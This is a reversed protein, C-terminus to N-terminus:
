RRRTVRRKKNSKRHSKRNKRSKRSGGNSKDEDTNLKLANNTANAENQKELVKNKANSMYTRVVTKSFNSTKIRDDILEEISENKEGMIKIDNTNGNDFYVKLILPTQKNINNLPNYEFM